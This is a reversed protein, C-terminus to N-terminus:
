SQPQSYFSNTYYVINKAILCGHPAFKCSGMKMRIFEEAKERNPKAFSDNMQKYCEECEKIIKEQLNM